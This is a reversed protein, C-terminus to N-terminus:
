ILLVRLITAYSKYIRSLKIKLLAKYILSKLYLSIYQQDDNSDNLDNKVIMKVEGDTDKGVRFGATTNNTTFDNVNYSSIAAGNVNGIVISGNGITITSSLDLPEDGAWGGDEAATQLEEITQGGPLTSGALVSIEGAITLKGTSEKWEIYQGSLDGAFLFSESDNSAERGIKIPWTGNADYFGLFYPTVYFGNTSANENPLFHDIANYMDTESDWFQSNIINVNANLTLKYQSTANDYAFLLDDGTWVSSDQQNNSELSNILNNGLALVPRNLIDLGLFVSRSTGEYIETAHSVPNELNQGFIGGFLNTSQGAYGNLQGIHAVPKADDWTSAASERGYLTIAPGLDGHITETTTTTNGNEDTTTTTTTAKKSRYMTGDYPFCRQSIGYSEKNANMVVYSEWNHLVPETNNYVVHKRWWTFLGSNGSKRSHNLEMDSTLQKGELYGICAIDDRNAYAFLGRPHPYFVYDEFGFHKGLRQTQPGSSYYNKPNDSQRTSTYTNNDENKIVQYGWASMEEDSSLTDIKASYWKKWYSSTNPETQVGDLFRDHQSHKKNSLFGLMDTNRWKIYNSYSGYIGDQGIWSKSDIGGGDFCDTPMWWDKGKNRYDKGWNKMKTIPPTIPKFNVIQGDMWLSEDFDDIPMAYLYEEDFTFGSQHGMQIYITGDKELIDSIYSGSKPKRSIKTGNTLHTNMKGNDVVINFTLNVSGLYQTVTEIAGANSGDNLQRVAYLYLKDNQSVDATWVYTTSADHGGISDTGPTDWPLATWPYHGTASHNTTNSMEDFVAKSTALVSPIFGISESRFQKGYSDGAPAADTNKISFM